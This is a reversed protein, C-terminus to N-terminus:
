GEARLVVEHPQIWTGNWAMDNKKKWIVWILVLCMEFGSTPIQRALRSIWQVLSMDHDQEVRLGLSRFWVARAVNCERLAYEISKGLGGYVVCVDESLVRRKCLNSRTPLGDLCARWACIKINGPVWTNWLKKWFKEDMSGLFSSSAAEPGGSLANLGQTVHYVSQVTFKGNRKYHWTQRDEVNRLSRPPELNVRSGGFLLALRIVSCEM